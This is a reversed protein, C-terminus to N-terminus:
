EGAVRGGGLGASAKRPFLMTHQLQILSKTFSIEPNQGSASPTVVTVSMEEVFCILTLLNVFGGLYPKTPVALNHIM